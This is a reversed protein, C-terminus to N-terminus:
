LCMPAMACDLVLGRASYDVCLASHQDSVRHGVLEHIIGFSLIRPPSRPRV